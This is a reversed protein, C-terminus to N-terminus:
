RRELEQVIGTSITAVQEDTMAPFIGQWATSSTSHKRKGLSRRAPLDVFESDADVFANGTMTGFGDRAGPTLYRLENVVIRM